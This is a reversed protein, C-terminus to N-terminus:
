LKQRVCSPYIYAGSWVGDQCTLTGMQCEGSPEFQHLYGTASHGEPIFGLPTNCGESMEKAQGEHEPASTACGVAFACIVFLLLNKM